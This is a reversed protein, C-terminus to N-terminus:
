LSQMGLKTLFHYSQYMRSRRSDKVERAASTFFLNFLIIIIIIIIISIIITM